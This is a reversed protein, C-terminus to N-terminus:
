RRLLFIVIAITAVVQGIWFIIIWKIVDKKASEIRSSLDPNEELLIEKAQGKNQFRPM